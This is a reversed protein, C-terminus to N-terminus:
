DIKDTVSVRIQNRENHQIFGFSVGYRNVNIRKPIVEFDKILPIM